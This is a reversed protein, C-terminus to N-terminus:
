SPTGLPQELFLDPENLVSGDSECHVIRTNERTKARKRANERESQELTVLRDVVRVASPTLRNLIVM